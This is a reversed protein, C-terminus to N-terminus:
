LVDIKSQSSQPRTALDLLGTTCDFKMMAWDLEAWFTDVVVNGLPLTAVATTFGRMAALGTSVVTNPVSSFVVGTVTMTVLVPAM